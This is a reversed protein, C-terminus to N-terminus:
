GPPTQRYVPITLALNYHDAEVNILLTTMDIVHKANYTSNLKLFLESNQEVSLYLIVLVDVFTVNNQLTDKTQM